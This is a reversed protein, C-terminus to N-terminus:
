QGGESANFIFCGISLFASILLGAYGLRALLATPHTGPPTPGTMWFQQWNPLLGALEIGIRNPAIGILWEAALGAALTSVCVATVTIPKLRLSLCLAMAGLTLLAAAILLAAPLIHPAITFRFAGTPQGTRDYFGTGLTLLALGLPLLCFAAAHFPTKRLLNLLVAALCALLIGALSLAATALDMRFGTSPTFTEAIRDALMTAAGASCSFLLLVMAIGAFRSLFVLAPPVPSLWTMAGTGSQRERRTTSCAGYIAIMLGALWQFALGGDSALRRATDGFTHSFLLPLSLTLVVTTLAMLLCFPNRLLERAHIAALAHLPRAIRM